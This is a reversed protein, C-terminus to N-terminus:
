TKSRLALRPPQLGPVVSFTYEKARGLCAVEDAITGLAAVADSAGVPVAVVVRAAGLKRAVQCAARATAGTVTGDDV